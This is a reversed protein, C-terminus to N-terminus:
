TWRHIDEAIGDMKDVVLSRFRGLVQVRDKISRNSWGPLAMRAKEYAQHIDSNTPLRFSEKIQPDVPSQNEIVSGM